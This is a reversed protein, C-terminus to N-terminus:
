VKGQVIAAARVACDKSQLLLRLCETVEVPIGPATEYPAKQIGDLADAATKHALDCFPQIVEALEAPLHKTIFFRLTPYQLLALCAGMDCRRPCLQETGPCTRLGRLNLPDPWDPNAPPPTDAGLVPQRKCDGPHCSQECAQATEPCIM